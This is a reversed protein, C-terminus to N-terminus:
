KTLKIKKNPLSKLIVQEVKSTNINMSKVNNINSGGSFNGSTLYNGMNSISNTNQNHNTNNNSNTNIFQESTNGESLNKHILNANFSLKSSNKTSLPLAFNTKATSKTSNTTLLFKNSPTVSTIGIGVVPGQNYNNTQNKSTLPTITEINSSSNFNVLKYRSSNKNITITPTSITPNKSLNINNSNGTNNANQKFSIINSDIITPSKNTIRNNNVKSNSINENFNYNSNYQSVFNNEGIKSDLQISHLSAKGVSGFKNSSTYNHNSNNQKGSNLTNINFKVTQVDDSKLYVKNSINNNNSATISNVNSHSILNNNSSLNIVTQKNPINEKYSVLKAHSFNNSSVIINNESLTPNSTLNNFGSVTNKLVHKRIKPEKLSLKKKLNIVRQTMGPENAPCLNDSTTKALKVGTKLISNNRVITDEKDKNNLNNNKYTNSNNSTNTLIYNNNNNEIAFFNKEKTTKNGQSQTSQTNQNIKNNFAKSSKGNSEITNSNYNYNELGTKKNKVSSNNNYINNSYIGLKKVDDKNMNSLTNTLMNNSNLSSQLNMAAKYNNNINGSILNQNQVSKTLKGRNNNTPSVRNSVKELYKQNSVPETLMPEYMFKDDRDNSQFDEITYTRKNAHNFMNKTLFDKSELNGSSAVNINNTKNNKNLINQSKVQNDNNLNYPNETFMNMNGEKNSLKYNAYNNNSNLKTQKNYYPTNNFQNNNLNNLNAEKFFSLILSEDNNKNYYNAISVRSIDMNDFDQFNMKLEGYNDGVLSKANKDSNENLNLIKIQELRDLEEKRNMNKLYVHKINYPSYYM